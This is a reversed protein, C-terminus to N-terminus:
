ATKGLESCIVQEELMMSNILILPEEKIETPIMVEKTLTAIGIEKTEKTKLAEEIEITEIM